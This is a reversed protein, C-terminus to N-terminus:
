LQNNMISFYKQLEASLANQQEAFVYLYESSFEVVGDICFKSIIKERESLITQIRKIQKEFINVASKFNASTKEHSAEFEELKREIEKKEKLTFNDSEKIEDRLDRLAELKKQNSSLAVAKQRLIEAIDDSDLTNSSAREEDVEITNENAKESAKENAKENTDSMTEKEKRGM